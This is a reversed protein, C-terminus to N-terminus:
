SQLENENTSIAGSNPGNAVIGMAFLRRIQWRILKTDYAKDRESKAEWGTDSETLGGCGTDSESTAKRRTLLSSLRDTDSRADSYWWGNEHRMNNWRVYEAEVAKPDPEILAKARDASLRRAEEDTLTGWGDRCEEYWKLLSRLARLNEDQFFRPLDFWDRGPVKSNEALLQKWRRRRAFMGAPPEEPIPQEPWRRRFATHQQRALRLAFDPPPLDRLRVEGDERVRHQAVLSPVYRLQGGAVVPQHWDARDYSRVIVRHRGDVAPFERALRAAADRMDGSDDVIVATATRVAKLRRRVAHEWDHPEPQRNMRVHQEDVEVDFIRLQGGEPAGPASWPARARDWEAKRVAARPGYLRVTQLSPNALRQLNELAVGVAKAAAEVAAGTAAEKEVEAVESVAEEWAVLGVEYRAWQEWALEDLLALWLVSEGVVLLETTQCDNPLFETVPLVARAVHSAALGVPTIADCIINAHEKRLNELRWQRAERTDNIRLFFRPDLADQRPKPELDALVRQLAEWVELNTRMDWTTAYLRRLSVRRPSWGRRVSVLRLASESTADDVLVVAGLRRAEAALPNDKTRDIVVLMTRRRVLHWLDGDRMGTIWALVRAGRSARLQKAEDAQAQKEDKTEDTPTREEDKAGDAFTQKVGGGLWGPKARVWGEFRYRHRRECALAKILPLTEPYLGVVVDVDSHWGIRIRALQQRAFVRVIEVAAYAIVIFALTRALEFGPPFTLACQAGPGVVEVEGEFTSLVWGIIPFIPDGHPRCPWYTATALALASVALVVGIVFGASSTRRRRRPLIVFTVTAIAALVLFGAVKSSSEYQYVLADNEESFPMQAGVPLGYKTIGYTEVILLVLLVLSIAGTILAFINYWNRAGHHASDDCKHRGAGKGASENRSM